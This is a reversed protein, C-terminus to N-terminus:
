IIWLSNVVLLFVLFLEGWLIWPFRERLDELMYAVLAIAPMASLTAWWYGEFYIAWGRNDLTRTFFSVFMINTWFISIFLCVLESRRDKWSYIAALLCLIGLPLFMVPFENRWAVVEKWIQGFVPISAIQAGIMGSQEGLFTCLRFVDGFYLFFSHFSARAGTANIKQSFAHYNDWSNQMNWYFSPSIIIFAFILAIYLDPRKLWYRYKKNMLILIFFIPILLFITEKALFGIGLVIGTFLSFRKSGTKIGRLFVYLALLSFFPVLSDEMALVSWGIHYQSFCMLTMALVAERKKTDERILLYIILLSITGLFIFLIRGGLDSEGFLIFGIKVLYVTLLPHHIQSSGIPLNLRAPDFSISKAIQIKTIEDPTIPTDHAAILRLSFGIILIFLVIYKENKLFLDKNIIM